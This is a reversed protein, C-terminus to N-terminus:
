ESNKTGLREAARAIRSEETEGASPTGANIAPDTARTAGHHRPEHLRDEQQM